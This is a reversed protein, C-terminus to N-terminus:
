AARNRPDVRHGRIPKAPAMIRWKLWALMAFYFTGFAIVKGPDSMWAGTAGRPLELDSSHITAFGFEPLPILLTAFLILLYAVASLTWIMVQRDGAARQANHAPVVVIFKSAIMWTFAICPWWSDFAVSLAMLFFLYFITCAAILLVGNVRTHIRVVIVAILLPLLVAAHILIFEVLMVLVANGVGREGFTLPAIWLTLFIGATVTDPLAALVRPLLTSAMGKM